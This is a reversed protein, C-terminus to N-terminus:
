VRGTLRKLEAIQSRYNMIADSAEAVPELEHGKEIDSLQAEMAALEGAVNSLREFNQVHKIIEGTKTDATYTIEDIM